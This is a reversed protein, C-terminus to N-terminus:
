PRGEEDLWGLDHLLPLTLDLTHNLDGNIAPEMLLNPSAVPDWHSISSGPVIPNTANVQARGAADAGARRTLDLGLTGTVTAFAALQAKIANGTALLIRAAPITIAPDAGGLPAPPSDAANDAIIAAVAGADQLNKVKIVFACGGRDALAIKGAIAGPNTIVTCADTMSPGAANVDDTALVIDASVGPSTLAGGFVAAGVDYQGAIAAPASIGLLPLGFALRSPVAATVESGIWVVNRGNPISLRREAVTMAPWTKGITNDFLNRNYVDPFGGLLQGFNPNPQPPNGVTPSINATNVVGLGHGFEHLATAM